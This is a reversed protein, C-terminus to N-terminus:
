YNVFIYFDYPISRLPCVLFILCFLKVALSMMKHSQSAVAVYLSASQSAFQSTKYQGPSAKSDNTM